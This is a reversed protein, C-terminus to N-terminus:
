NLEPRNTNYKFRSSGLWSKQWECIASIGKIGESLFHFGFVLHKVWISAWNLYEVRMTASLDKMSKYFQRHHTLGCNGKWYRMINFFHLCLLVWAFFKWLVYVNHMSPIYLIYLVYVTGQGRERLFNKLLQLTIHINM